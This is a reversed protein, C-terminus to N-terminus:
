TPHRNNQPGPNTLTNDQSLDAMWHMQPAREEMPLRSHLTVKNKYHKESTRFKGDTSPTTPLPLGDLGPFIKKLFVM